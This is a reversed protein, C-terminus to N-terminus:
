EDFVGQFRRNSSQNGLPDIAEIRVASFAVGKSGADQSEDLEMGINVITATKTKGNGYDLTVCLLTGIANEVLYSESNHNVTKQAM